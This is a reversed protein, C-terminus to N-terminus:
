GAALLFGHIAHLWSAARDLPNMEQRCVAYMPPQPHLAFTVDLADHLLSKNAPLYFFAVYIVNVPIEIEHM